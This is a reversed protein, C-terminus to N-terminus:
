VLRGDCGVRYRRGRWTVRGPWFSAVFVAFSLLDRLPGWWMRGARGGLARDAQIQVALRCALSAGLLGMGLIDPVLLVGLLAFALPHTVASGAFGIPDVHRITRAWRLEHGLLESFGAEFCTHDLVIPPIAVNYGLARVAAGVDHDDALRDAFAEFGGIRVLTNRRLAITSGFCPKALGLRLGVLVSPMFHYDIAMASLRSWPGAVPLGRYLCTVLGVGPRDLAAIVNSLYERSARIDSDALVIVDGCAVRAMNILNSVKRNPGHLASNVVLKLPAGPQRELLANVSNVAPDSPDQVGFLVEFSGAYNQQAFSSLNELLRPEAGYLPKLISVSPSPSRAVSPGHATLRRLCVAAFLAYVCGMTSFAICILWLFTMVGTSFDIM